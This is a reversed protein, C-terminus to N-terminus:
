MNWSSLIDKLLLVTHMSIKPSLIFLNLTTLVYFVHM